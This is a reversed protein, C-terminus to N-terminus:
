AADDLENDDFWSRQQGCAEAIANLVLRRPTQEGREWRGVESASYGILEGLEQQTDLGALARAAKIRRGTTEPDMARM